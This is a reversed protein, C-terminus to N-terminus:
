AECELCIGTPAPHRAREAMMDAYAARISAANERLWKSDAGPKEVTQLLASTHRNIDIM